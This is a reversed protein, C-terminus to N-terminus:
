GSPADRSRVKADTICMMGARTKCMRSILTMSTFAVDQDDHSKWSPSYSGVRKM